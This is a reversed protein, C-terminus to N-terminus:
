ATQERNELSGDTSRLEFDNVLRQEQRGREKREKETFFRWTGLTLLTLPVALLFFVWIRKSVVFDHGQPNGFSFLNM